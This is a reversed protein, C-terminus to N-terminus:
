DTCACTFEERDLLPIQGRKESALMKREVARGKQMKKLATEDRINDIETYSLGTIFTAGAKLEQQPWWDSRDPYLDAMAWLEPIRKFFCRDCNSSARALCQDPGDMGPCQWGKSRWFPNIHEAKTIGDRWMPFDQERWLYKHHWSQKRSKLSCSLPISARDCKELRKHVRADEDARLGVNMVVPEEPLNLYRWWISPLWKLEETCFRSSKNPLQAGRGKGCLVRDYTMTTPLWGGDRDLGRPENQGQKATLWLIPRQILQELDLVLKLTHDLERSAVFGPVRNQIERLLGQDKPAAEKQDTCVLCFIDYDAPYHAAMYASSAGGSISNITTVMKEEELKGVADQV